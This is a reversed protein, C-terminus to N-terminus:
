KNRFQSLLRRIVKLIEKPPTAHPLITNLSGDPAVVYTNASHDILYGGRSEDKVKHYVAGYQKAIQAIHDPKGTVGIISPHFYKTYAALRDLTDREPDVSIFVGQVRALEDKNLANLAQAMLMLNTPCIDPCFTYGFYVLVVKGRQAKLEFPGSASDLTFDGGQPVESLTVHRNPMVQWLVIFGAVLILTAVIISTKHSTKV